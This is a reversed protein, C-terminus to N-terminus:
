KHAPVAMARVMELGLRTSNPVAGWYADPYTLARSTRSSNHPPRASSPPLPLPIATLYM